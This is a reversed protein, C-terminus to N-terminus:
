PPPFMISKKLGARKGDITVKCRYSIDIYRKQIWIWDCAVVKKPTYKLIRAQFTPKINNFWSLTSKQTKSNKSKLEEFFQYVEDRNETEFVIEEHPEIERNGITDPFVRIQVAFGLPPSKSM